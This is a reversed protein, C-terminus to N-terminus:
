GRLARITERALAPRNTCIADVGFQACRTIDDPRDLTWVVLERGTKHMLDVLERDVLDGQQWLMRAGADELAALPHVPYSASLIGRALTPRLGGLRRVIRHDFSHVAYGRPNPGHDLVALLEPELLPPLSKVEVFVRLGPDLVRLAEDLTPPPQGDALRHRRAAALDLEGIRAEPGLRADHHVLLAGDRTAHVDLEVGDAGSARVARFAALSNEPVRDPAGRHAVILPRM